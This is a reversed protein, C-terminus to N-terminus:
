RTHAPALAKLESGQRHKSQERRSSCFSSICGGRRRRSAIAGRGAITVLEDRVLPHTDRFARLIVDSGLTEFNLTFDDIYTIEIEIQVTVVEAIANKHHRLLHTSPDIKEIEASPTSQSREPIPVIAIVVGDTVM